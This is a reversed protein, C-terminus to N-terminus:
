TCTYIHMNRRNKLQIKSNNRCHQIKENKMENNIEYM